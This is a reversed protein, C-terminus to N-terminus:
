RGTLDFCLVDTRDKVFLRAGSVALHSWTPGNETLTWRAKRMVVAPDAEYVFLQGDDALVLLQGGARVISAYNGSVASGWKTKGSALEVCVLQKRFNLGVIHDKFAVPTSHTIRLLDSSWAVSAGLKLGDRRIRLAVTPKKEGGVLVLDKWVVPTLVTQEYKAEFPHGWLLRGDEPRLGVMRTGTFGVLQRVGALTAVVPSGYSSRDAAPSKWLVKGSRRDFATMTGAKKGGVSVIVREGDILPSTAAGCCPWYADDGWQDKEVGWFEKRLDHKWVVIGSSADLCHLMGAVGLAFVRNGAVTPTSKPGQGASKDAPKYDCDYAHQWLVKGSRADLAWCVEKGDPARGLVFLKNGVVVPSSQGEGVTQKWVPAPPKEPWATPLRAGYAVGDRDRGRWQPWDARLPLATILLVSLSIIRM